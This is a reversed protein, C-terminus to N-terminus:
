ARLYAGGKLDTLDKNEADVQAKSWLYSRGGRNGLGVLPRPARKSCFRFAAPERAWAHRPWRGPCRVRGGGRWGWAGSASLGERAARALLGSAAREGSGGARRAQLGVTGPTCTPRAPTLPARLQIRVQRCRSRCESSLAPPAKFPVALSVDPPLRCILTSKIEKV